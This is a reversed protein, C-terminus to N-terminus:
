HSLNAAKIQFTKIRFIKMRQTHLNLNIHIDIQEKFLNNNNFKIEYTKIKNSKWNKHFEFIMRVIKPINNNLVNQVKTM